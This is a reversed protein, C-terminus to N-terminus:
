LHRVLNAQCSKCHLIDEPKLLKREGKRKKTKKGNTENLHVMKGCFETYPNKWTEMCCLLIIIGSDYFDRKIYSWRERNKIPVWVTLMLHAANKLVTSFFIGHAFMVEIRMSM